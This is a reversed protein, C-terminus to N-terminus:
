RVHGINLWILDISNWCLQVLIVAGVILWHHSWIEISLILPPMENPRLVNLILFQLTQYKCQLRFSLLLFANDQTGIFLVIGLVNNPSLRIASRRRRSFLTWCLVSNCITNNTLLNYYDIKLILFFYFNGIEEHFVM